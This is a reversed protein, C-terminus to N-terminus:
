TNELDQEKYLRIVEKAFRQQQSSLKPLISFEGEFYDVAMSPVEYETNRARDSALYTLFSLAYYKASSENMWMLPCMYRIDYHEPDVESWAKGPFYSEVDGLEMDAESASSIDAIFGKPKPISKWENILSTIDM